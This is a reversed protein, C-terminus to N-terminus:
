SWRYHDGSDRNFIQHLYFLCLAIMLWGTGEQLTRASTDAVKVTLTVIAAESRDLTGAVSVAGTRKDLEFFDRASSVDTLRKGRSDVAIIPDVISYELGNPDEVDPDSALLQHVLTGPTADESV